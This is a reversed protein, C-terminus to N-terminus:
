KIIKYLEFATVASDFQMSRLNKNNVDENLPQVSNYLWFGTLWLLADADLLNYYESLDTYGSLKVHVFLSALDVNKNGLELFNWDVIRVEQKKESWACNDARIDYHVLSNNPFNIDKMLSYYLNFNEILELNKVNEIKLKLDLAELSIPDKFLLVWGNEDKLSNYNYSKTEEKTLEIAALKDMADLTKDLRNKTWNSQFDWGDEQAFYEILFGIQDSASCYFKPIYPFQKTELFKYNDIEKRISDCTEQDVGKKVFYNKGSISIIGRHANTYGGSVPILNDIHNKVDGWNIKSLFIESM